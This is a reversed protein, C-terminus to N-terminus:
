ASGGPIALLLILAAHTPDAPSEPGISLVDALATQGSLCRPSRKPSLIAGNYMPLPLPLPATIMYALVIGNTRGRYDDLMGALIKGADSRDRYVQHKNRMQRIDIITDQM